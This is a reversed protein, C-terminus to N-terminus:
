TTGLLAIPRGVGGHNHQQHALRTGSGASSEALPARERAPASTPPVAARARQRRAAPPAEARKPRPAAPPTLPAGLRRTPAARRDESRAASARLLRCTGEARTTPPRPALGRLPPGRAPPPPSPRDPRLYLEGRGPCAPPLPRRRRKRPGPQRPSPNPLMGITRLAGGGGSSFSGDPQRGDSGGRRLRVLLEGVLPSQPQARGQPLRQIIQEPVAPGQLHDRREAIAPAHARVALQRQGGHPRSRGGVPASARGTAPIRPGGAAAFFFCLCKLILRRPSAPLHALLAQARRAQGYRM